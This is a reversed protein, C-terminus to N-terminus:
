RCSHHRNSKLQAFYKFYLSVLGRMCMYVPAHFNKKKVYCMFFYAEYEHKFSLNSYICQDYFGVQIQVYYEGAQAVCQLYRLFFQTVCPVQLCVLATKQLHNKGQFEIGLSPRRRQSVVCLTACIISTVRMRRHMTEVNLRHSSSIRRGM